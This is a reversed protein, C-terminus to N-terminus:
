WYGKIFDLKSIFKVKSIKNLIVDIRFMLKFDFVMIKNLEWFDVCFRLLNDKKKIFVVLVLYLSDMEEIIGFDMM